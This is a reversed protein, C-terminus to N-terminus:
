EDLQVVHSRSSVKKLDTATEFGIGCVFCLSEDWHWKSNHAAQEKADNFIIRCPMCHLTWCATLMFMQEEMMAFTREINQAGVSGASPADEGHSTIKNQFWWLTFSVALVSVVFADQETRSNWPKTPSWFCNTGPRM